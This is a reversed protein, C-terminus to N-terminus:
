IYIKTTRWHLFDHTGGTAGGGTHRWDGWVRHAEQQVVGTHRRNCWRRIGGTAGGRIGGTAGGRIGGTAGGGYTEQQKVGMHRRNCWQRIGGTAEGGYAEQQVM